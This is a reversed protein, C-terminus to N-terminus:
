PRGQIAVGAQTLLWDPQLCNQTQLVIGTPPESLPMELWNGEPDQLYFSASAMRPKQDHVPRVSHGTAQLSDHILSSRLATQSTFAFHPNRSRHLDKASCAVGDRKDPIQFLSLLIGTRCFFKWTFQLGLAKVLLAHRPPM